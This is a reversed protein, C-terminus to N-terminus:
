FEEVVRELVPEAEPELLTIRNEDPLEEIVVTSESQLDPRRPALMSRPVEIMDAHLKATGFLALSRRRPVVFCAVM